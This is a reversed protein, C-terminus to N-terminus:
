VGNEIEEMEALDRHEEAWATFRARAEQLAAGHLRYVTREDYYLGYEKLREDVQEWRLCDVYRLRLVTRHRADPLQAIFQEVAEIQKVYRVGDQILKETQDSLAIMLDDKHVDGGGGPAASWATTIRTCEAALQYLRVECRKQEMRAARVSRLFSEADRYTNWDTM